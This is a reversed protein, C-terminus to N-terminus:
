RDRDAAAAMVATRARRSPPRTISRDAIRDTCTWRRDDDASTPPPAHRAVEEIGGAGDALVVDASLLNDLTLGFRGILGGYGGAMAMGIIGVGRVAGAATALGHATVASPIALWGRRVSFM